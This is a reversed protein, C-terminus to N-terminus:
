DLPSLHLVKALLAKLLAATNGVNGTPSLYLFDSAIAITLGMEPSFHIASGGDEGTHDVTYIMHWLSM